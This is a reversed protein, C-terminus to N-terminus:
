DATGDEMGGGFLKQRIIFVSWRLYKNDPSMGGISMNTGWVGVLPRRLHKKSFINHCKRIVIRRNRDERRDVQGNM